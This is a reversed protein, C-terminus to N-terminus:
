GAGQNTVRSYAIVAQPRLTTGRWEYGPRVSEAISGALAPDSVTRTAVIQHRAANPPGTGDAFRTVECDELLSDVQSRLWRILDALEDQAMSQPDNMDALNDALVILDEVVLHPEQALTLHRPLREGDMEPTVRRKALEQEGRALRDDAAALRATLDAVRGSADESAFTLREVDKAAADLLASLKVNEAREAATFSKERALEARLKARTGERRWCWNRTM